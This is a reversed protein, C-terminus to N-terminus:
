AVSETFEAEFILLMARKQFVANLFLFRLIANGAIMSGNSQVNKKQGLWSPGYLLSQAHSFRCCGKQLNQQLSYHLLEQILCQIQLLLRWISIELRRLVKIIFIKEGHVGM